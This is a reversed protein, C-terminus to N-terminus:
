EDPSYMISLKGNGVGDAMVKAVEADVGNAESVAWEGDTLRIEISLDSNTDDTM